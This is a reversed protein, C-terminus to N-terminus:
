RAVNNRSDRAKISLFVQRIVQGPDVGGVGAPFLQTITADVQAATVMTLGLARVGDLVETHAHTAKPKPKRKIPVAPVSGRPAYFLIVRGDVGCNRRRVELCMAQQEADYYPRGRDDRSPEPFATGILQYLRSRSLHLMRAMEAVTVAVKFEDTMERDKRLREVTILYTSM